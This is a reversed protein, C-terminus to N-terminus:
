KLELLLLDRPCSVRLPLTDNVGRSVWLRTPGVQFQEGHYAFFWAGPFDLGRDRFAIWQCGHLHGALMAPFGARAAARVRVPEHGILISRSTAGQEVRGCLRLGSDLSVPALDLWHLSDLQQQLRKLGCWRDHNGPVGLLPYRGALRELWRRLGLWGLPLDVLDGGFVLLDPELTLLLSELERLVPGVWPAYHLDSLYVLRM